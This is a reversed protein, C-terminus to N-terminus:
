FITNSSMLQGQGSKSKCSDQSVSKVGLLTLAAGGIQLVDWGLDLKRVWLSGAQLGRSVLTAPLLWRHLSLESWPMEEHVLRQDPPPSSTYSLCPGAPTSLSSLPPLPLSHLSSPLTHYLSFVRKQQFLLFLCLLTYPHLPLCFFFLASYFSSPSSSSSLLVLLLPSPPPHAPYTPNPCLM